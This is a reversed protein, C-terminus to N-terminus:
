GPSSEENATFGKGDTGVIVSVLKGYKAMEIREWEERDIGVGLVYKPQGSPCPLSKMCCHKVGSWQPPEGVSCGHTLCYLSFSGPCKQHQVSPLDRSQLSEIKM